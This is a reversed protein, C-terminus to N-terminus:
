HTYGRHRHHSAGAGAAAIVLWLLNLVVSPWARHASGNVVLALSGAANLVGYAPSRLTLKRASLLAYAGLLAAAGLWGIVSVLNM